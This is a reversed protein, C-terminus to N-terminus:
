KMQQGSVDFVVGKLPKMLEAVVEGPCYHGRWGSLLDQLVPMRQAGMTRQQMGLAEPKMLAAWLVAVEDLETMPEVNETHVRCGEVGVKEVM